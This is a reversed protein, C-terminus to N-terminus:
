LLFYGDGLDVDVGGAQLSQRAGDAPVVYMRLSDGEDVMLCLQEHLFRAKEVDMRCEFVSGQVRTGFRELVASVSQRMGNKTIDYCFVVLHERGAMEIPWVTPSSNPM